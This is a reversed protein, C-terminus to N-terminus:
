HLLAVLWKAPESSLRKWGLRGFAPAPRTGARLLTGVEKLFIDFMKQPGACSSAASFVNILLFHLCVNTNRGLFLSSIYSIKHKKGNCVIKLKLNFCKLIGGRQKQPVTEAAEM